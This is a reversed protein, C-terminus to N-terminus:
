QIPSLVSSRIGILLKVRDGWINDPLKGSWDQPVTRYVESHLLRLDFKPFVSTVKALGKCELKHFQSNAEPGLVCSYVGYKTWIDGRGIVSIRTCTNDVVRFGAREALDGDVLHANSGSDYFSLVSKGTICLQQMTYFSEEKSHRVVKDTHSLPRSDGSSTNFAFDESSL